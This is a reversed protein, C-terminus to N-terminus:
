PCMHTLVAFSGSGAVLLSGIVTILLAEAIRNRGVPPSTMTDFLREGTGYLLLVTVVGCGFSLVPLKNCDFYRYQMGSVILAAALAVLRASAWRSNFM